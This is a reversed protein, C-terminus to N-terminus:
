NSRVGTLGDEPGIGAHSHCRICQVQKHAWDSSVLSINTDLLLTGHSYRVVKPVGSTVDQRIPEGDATMPPLKEVHCVACLKVQKAAYEASTYAMEHQFYVGAGSVGQQNEPMKGGAAQGVATEAAHCMGKELNGCTKAGSVDNYFTGKAPSVASLAGWVEKYSATKVDAGTPKYAIKISGVGNLLTTNAGSYVLSIGTTGNLSYDSGGGILKAGAALGSTGPDQVTVAIGTVNSGLRIYGTPNSTSNVLVDYQTSSSTNTAVVDNFKLVYETSGAATTYTSLNYGSLWIQDRNAWTNHCMMCGGSVAEAQTISEGPAMIVEAEEYIAGAFHPLHTTANLERVQDPHCAGCYVPEVIAHTPTFRGISAVALGASAVILVAIVMKAITQERRGVM